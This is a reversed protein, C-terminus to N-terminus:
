WDACFFLLLPKGARAAETEASALDAQWQIEQLALLVLLM